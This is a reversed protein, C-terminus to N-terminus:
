TWKFTRYKNGQILIFIDINIIQVVVCMCFLVGVRYKRWGQRLAAFPQLHDIMM